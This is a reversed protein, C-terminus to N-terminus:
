VDNKRDKTSFQMGLHYILSDGANGSFSGVSELTFNNREPGVRFDDYLEYAKNGDYDKILVLIEQQKLTMAHLKDPGLIFENDLDGFGQKYDKWERFFDQSGDNRRLIATWGGEHSEQDCSV